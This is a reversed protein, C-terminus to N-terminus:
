AEFVTAPEIDDPLPYAEVFAIAALLTAMNQEVAKKWAPKIELKLCHAAADVYASLHNDSQDNM